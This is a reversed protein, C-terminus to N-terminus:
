LCYFHISASTLILDKKIDAKETYFFDDTHCFVIPVPIQQEIGFSLVEWDPRSLQSYMM